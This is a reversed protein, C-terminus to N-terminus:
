KLIRLGKLCLLARFSTEIQTLQVYLRIQAISMLARLLSVVCFDLREEPKFFSILLLEVQSLANM